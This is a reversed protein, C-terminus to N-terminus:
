NDVPEPPPYPVPIRCGKSILTWDSNGANRGASTPRMAAYLLIYEGDSDRMPSASGIRKLDYRFRVTAHAHKYILNRLPMFHKNISSDNKASAIMLGYEAAAMLRRNIIITLPMNLEGQLDAVAPPRVPIILAWEKEIKIDQCDFSSCFPANTKRYILDARSLPFNQTNFDVARFAKRASSILDQKERALADKEDTTRAVYDELKGLMSLGKVYSDLTPRKKFLDKGYPTNNALVTTRATIVAKTVMEKDEKICKRSLSKIAKARILEYETFEIEKSNCREAFADLDLEMYITRLKKKAADITAAKAMDGKHKYEMMGLDLLGKRYTGHTTDTKLFDEIAALEAGIDSRFFVAELKENPKM